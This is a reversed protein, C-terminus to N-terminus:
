AEGRRVARALAKIKDATENRECWMARAVIEVKRQFDLNAGDTLAQEAKEMLDRPLDNM